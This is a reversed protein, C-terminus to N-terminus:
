VWPTPALFFPLACILYMLSLRGMQAPDWALELPNFALRQAVLFSAVSTIGFLGANLAFLETFRRLMWRGAVALFTGSVGFGLLALSIIMYAFHHWQVISFLRLLLVEFGLIAASLVAVALFPPSPLHTGAEAREEPGTMM